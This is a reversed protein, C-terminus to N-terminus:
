FRRHSRMAVAVDIILTSLALNILESRAPRGGALGRARYIALCRWLFCILLVLAGDAHNDMPLAQRRWWCITSYTTLDIRVRGHLGTVTRSPASHALSAGAPLDATLAAPAAAPEDTFVALPM